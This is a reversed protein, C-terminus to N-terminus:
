NNVNKGRFMVDNNRIGTQGLNILNKTWLVFVGVFFFLGTSQPGETQGTNRRACVCAVGHSVFNSRVLCNCISSFLSPRELLEEQSDCEM